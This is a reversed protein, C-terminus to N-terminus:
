DVYSTRRGIVIRDLSNYDKILQSCFGSKELIACVAEGQDEGIEFFFEGDPKLKESWNEVIYRYFELGDAGGDLAMEPEFRVEKQLSHLEDSKIYPPNSIIVDAQPYKEFQEIKLVDGIVVTYFTNKLHEKTNISLYEYADLSKEVFYIDIDSCEKKLTVGICGSGSCLDFVVAGKKKKLCEIAKECLLETEPRPILVGKGLTFTRGMFDWQGFIYQLPEGSIRRECMSVIKELSEESIDTCNDLFYDSLNLNLVECIILRCEAEVSSINGEKLINKTYLKLEKLTMM